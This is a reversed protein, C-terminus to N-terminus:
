PVDARGLSDLYGRAEGAGWAVTCAALAPLARVLAGVHRRAGLVRFVIKGLLLAPVLPSALLAAARWAAGHRAGREWGFRRGHRVRLRLFARAPPSGVQQVRMGPLFVLTRGAALLKRHAEQEWFEDGRDAGVAALAARKYSANDGALDPVYTEHRHGLYASYRLFFVAWDFARGGPPPDVAGGIGAVDLRAHSRRVVDVWDPAPRFQTTTFAVVSGQVRALGQGWLRPVPADAPGDLWAAWPFEATGAGGGAPVVVVVEAAGDRQRGLAELCAQPRGDEPRAAVVISLTPLPKV